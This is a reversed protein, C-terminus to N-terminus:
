SSVAADIVRNFDRLYSQEFFLRESWPEPFDRHSRLDVLFLRLIRIVTTRTVALINVQDLL